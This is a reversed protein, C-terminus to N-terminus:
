RSGAANKAFLSGVRHKTQPSAPADDERATAAVLEDLVGTQIGKEQARASLVAWRDGIAKTVPLVHAPDFWELLETELWPKLRDRRKSPGLLEM